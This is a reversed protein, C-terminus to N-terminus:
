RSPHSDVGRGWLRQEQRQRNKLKDDKAFRLVQKQKQRQKQLQKGWDGLFDDDRGFRNVAGGHVACHLSGRMEGKSKRNGTKDVELIRQM